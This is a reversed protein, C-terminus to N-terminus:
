QKGFALLFEKQDIKGDGDKDASKIMADVDDDSAGMATFAAKIEDYSLSGDKNEDLQDFAKILEPISPKEDVLGAKRLNKTLISPMYAKMSDQRTITAPPAQMGQMAQMLAAQQQAQVEQQAKANKFSNLGNVLNVIFLILAIYFATEITSKEFKAHYGFVDIDESKSLANTLAIFYDIIHWIFFGGFTFGKLCGLLMQGMFCRDCGCCGFMMALIVYTVKSVKPPAAKTIEVEHQVLGITNNWINQSFTLKSHEPMKSETRLSKVVAGYSTIGQAALLFVLMCHKAM